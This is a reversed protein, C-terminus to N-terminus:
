PYEPWGPKLDYVAPNAQSMWTEAQWRDESAPAPLRRLYSSTAWWFNGGFFPPDSPYHQNDVWHCGVADHRALLALCEEWEYIVKRTMSRRWAMNTDSGDAAGKTHAYVVAYEDQSKQVDDHIAQLTLQEWGEDAERWAAPEPLDWNRCLLGIRQRAADRDRPPGVLGVTTVVGDLGSRGMATFHDRVPVAWAGAAYCHYYHRVPLAARLRAERQACQACSSGTM